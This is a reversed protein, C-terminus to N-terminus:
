TATADAVEMDRIRVDVHLDRNDTDFGTVTIEFDDETIEVRMWNEAFDCLESGKFNCEIGGLGLQFDATNYKTFPSGRRVGYAVKVALMLPRQAGPDGRRIAFGNAIKEVIFRRPVVPIDVDESETEGGDKKKQQKQKTKPGTEIDAPLSFLDVLLSTDPKKQQDSIIALIAPVSQIVYDLHAPAYVYKEKVSEKEWRTHSPNESDGLFSALPGEDIVVLARIGSTRRPRVDTIIIGERIFIIQGESASPDRQLFVDFRCDVAQKGKLRCQMPVTLPALDGVELKAHVQARVDEPVCDKSWKPANATNPAALVLRDTLTMSAEAMALVPKLAGALEAPQSEVVSKITDANIVLLTGTEDVVEVVLKKRLIPHFYGQLVAKTIEPVTVDDSLWPIVVSLGNQDGRSMGFDTKFEALFGPNNQVPLTLGPVETSRIGFWGDPLYPKQDLWHNRLVATGMLLEEGSGRRTLGFISRTRSAFMFVLRGVGHRGRAGDTKDSIGEARFYNFFPNAQGQEDPWWKAADGNLGSTGFDEFVLYRFPEHAGPPAAIKNRVAPVDFHDNFGVLYKSLREARKLASWVGVSIRVRIAPADQAADLSNQIGERVIANAKNAVADSNFFKEVQSERARDGPGAEKFNWLIAV